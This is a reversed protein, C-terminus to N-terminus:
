RCATFFYQKPYDLEEPGSRFLRLLADQVVDAATSDDFGFAKRIHGTAMPVFKWVQSLATAAM